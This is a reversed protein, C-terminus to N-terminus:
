SEETSQIRQAAECAMGSHRSSGPHGIKRRTQYDAVPLFETSPIKGFQQHRPAEPFSPVVMSRHLHHVATHLSFPADLSISQSFLTFSLASCPHVADMIPKSCIPGVFPVHIPDYATMLSMLTIIVVVFVQRQAFYWESRTRIQQLARRAKPADLQEIQKDLLDAVAIEMGEAYYLIVLLCLLVGTSFLREELVVTWLWIVTLAIWALWLYLRRDIFIPV